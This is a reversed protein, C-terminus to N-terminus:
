QEAVLKRTFFDAVLQHLRPITAARDFDPPDSLMHSAVSDQALPPMPSLMAGHGGHPLRMVVECRPECAKRIAEVHFEPIQNVDKDAIVLGLAIRPQALSAPVFDAAFPVMAVAARVRVDVHRQLAEDSFRMSIIRKAVWIKVGDFWSGHLLTITGVCSSFDRAINQVCHDRFRGPSWEGGAM